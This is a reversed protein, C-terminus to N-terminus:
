NNISMTHMFNQLDFFSEFDHFVNNAEGYETKSSNTSLHMKLDAFIPTKIHKFHQPTCLLRPVWIDFTVAGLDVKVINHDCYNYFM